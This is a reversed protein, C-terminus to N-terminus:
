MLGNALRGWRHATPDRPAGVPPLLHLLPELESNRDVPEAKREAQLTPTPQLM